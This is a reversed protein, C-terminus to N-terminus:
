TPPPAPREKRPPAASRGVRGRLTRSAADDQARIAVHDRRGMHDRGCPMPDGGESVAPLGVELHDAAIQERVQRDHPRVDRVQGPDVEPVRLLDLHPLQDDGDTVRPSQGARHGGPHHARETSGQGGATPDDFIHDLGVGGEVGAVGAAGQDVGSGAQDAHVGGQRTEAETQRHRDVRGSEADHVRQKSISPHAAGVQAHHTSSARQGRTLDVREALAGPYADGLDSRAARRLRGAELGGIRDQGDVPRPDLVGAVQM